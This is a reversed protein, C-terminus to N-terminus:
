GVNRGEVHSVFRASVLARGVAANIKFNSRSEPRDSGDWERLNAALREFDFIKALREDAKMREMEAILDERDRAFRQPWDSSQAGIRNELRVMEPVRGQMLRRALWRTQGDRLYQEDPIGACFELLPLYATPDRMPVGYLLQYGLYIEPAGDNLSDVVNARWTRASPIDYFDIDHGGVEARDLVGCERAFDERMGCWTAFASPRWPRHRDIKRKWRVPVHPMVALSILKRWFPRPDDSKGIERLLRFWQGERLWTPYGTLGDYSFGSNGLDGTLMLDCGLDAAQELSAHSWHANMENFVPWGGVLFQRHGREGYRFDAAEIFHPEIQPYMACLARVHASEDGFIGPRPPPTWGQMPVSTFAQLRRGAPLRKVAYSAVTQSDFGGSLLIGPASSGDMTASVAEDFLVDLAEVYDEDRRLRIEPADKVSWLRRAKFGSPDHVEEGGGPVRHMGAYFSTRGDPSFLLLEDAVRDDNIRAPVGSALIPGPLSSVVIRSGDRWVHLPMNSTGSRALRLSRRQPFWQLAAYDGVIARYAAEGMRASVAAYLDADDMGQKLDFRRLLDTRNFIRGALLVYSGDEQERFSGRRNQASRGAAIPKEERIALAAGPVCGHIIDGAKGLAMSRTVREWCPSFWDGGDLDIAATLILVTKTM